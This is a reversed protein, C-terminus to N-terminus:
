RLVSIHSESVETLLGTRAKTTEVSSSAKPSLTKISARGRPGPAQNLLKESTRVSVSSRPGGGSGGTVFLNEPDAYGGAIAADVVAMLEDFNSIPYNDEIRDAFARGDGGSAQALSFLPALVGM